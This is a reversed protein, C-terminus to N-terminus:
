RIREWDPPTADPRWGLMRDYNPEALRNSVLLQGAVTAALAGATLLFPADAPEDALLLAPIAPFAVLGAVV